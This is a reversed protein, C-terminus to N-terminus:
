GSSPVFFLHKTPLSSVLIANPVAIPSPKAAAAGAIIPWVM